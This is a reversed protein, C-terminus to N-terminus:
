QPSSYTWQFVFKSLPPLPFKVYMATYMLFITVGTKGRFHPRSLIIHHNWLLTRFDITQHVEDRADNLRQDFDINNIINTM